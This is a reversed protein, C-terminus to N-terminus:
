IHILSLLLDFDPMREPEITRADNCYWEGETDFLLRYNKDAYADVECHGVCTFGGARRLGQRKYVDTVWEELIEGEKNLIQLKAGKLEEGTTIDTKSIEVKSYDDKM